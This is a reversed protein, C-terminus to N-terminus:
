PAKGASGFTRMFGAAMARVEKRVADHLKAPDHQAPYANLHNRLTETYTIKLQTSINVKVAGLRILEHFVEEKLGTGGHLVIPCPEAAVIEEVRKFNIKPERKYVGHATGIAPAFSDIRTARMFAVAQDLPVVAGEDESGVDDEVGEVAELEGEVAVGHRHALEVVATTQALNDAYNLNSADFLVSNWGAAVCEEIMGRDPCHDLHLTAPIPARRAMDQFMERLLRSGLQKVTKVSVQIIVPSRTEEAAELVALMTLDNVINFAGVGYRRTFADRLIEQMPVAPM